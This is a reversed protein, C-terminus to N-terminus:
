LILRQSKHSIATKANNLENLRKVIDIQDDDSLDSDDLRQTLEKILREIIKSRYLM